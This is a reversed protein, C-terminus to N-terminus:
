ITILAVKNDPVYGSTGVSYGAATNAASLSTYLKTGNQSKIMEKVYLPHIYYGSNSNHANTIGAFVQNVVNELSVQRFVLLQFFENRRRFDPSYDNGSPRRFASRGLPNARDHGGTFYDDSDSKGHNLEKWKGNM